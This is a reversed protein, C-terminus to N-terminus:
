RSLRRLAEKHTAFVKDMAQDVALPADSSSVSLTRGNVQLTVPVEPSIGVLEMLTRDLVVAYSNGVKVLAKTLM